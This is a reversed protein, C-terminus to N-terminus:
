FGGASALFVLEELEREQGLIAPITEGELGEVLADELAIPAPLAMPEEHSMLFVGALAAAVLAMPVLARRWAFVVEAISLDGNVRRRALEMQAQGLVRAHFRVWFGSDVTGPDLSELPVSELPMREEIENM